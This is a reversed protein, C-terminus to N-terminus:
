RVNMSNIRDIQKLGANILVLIIIWAIGTLGIQILVTGIPMDWIGHLVIAILFFQLFRIDKIHDFSLYENGKVRVLAAGCMATWVIHGGASLIGRKYIVDMMVSIDYHSGIFYNFIYGATEFVAFGAGVAAGILLGNLIYKEKRGRVFYATVIMKGTEEVAGILLAGTYDITGAGTLSYLILTVFLSFVGGIFFIKTVDFVNVNRPANVEWFFILLSFPITLAGIFIIGPYANINDFINLLAVLVAFTIALLMFVRSYLWPKPWETSIDQEGPTTKATGCIFINEREEVTHKQFVNCVLDSLKLNVPGSEGAMNNVKDVFGNFTNKAQREISKAYDEIDNTNQDANDEFRYGCESCFCAGAERKTGCNPCFVADAM